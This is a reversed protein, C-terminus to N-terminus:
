LNKLNVSISDPITVNKKYGTLPVEIIYEGTKYLELCGYGNADTTDAVYNIVVSVSDIWIPFQSIRARIIADQLPNGVPDYIYLYVACLNPQNPTPPLFTTGWITDTLNGTVVITDEPFSVGYKKKQFRYTDPTCNFSIIGSTNSEEVGLLQGAYNLINISVEYIALSDQTNKVYLTVSKSGSIAFGKAQAKATDGLAFLGGGIVQWAFTKIGTKGDKYEIAFAKYEGMNNSGDSAKIKKSFYGTRISTTVISSDIISGNYFWKFFVSDLDAVQLFTTDVAGVELRLSDTPSYIGIYGLFLFLLM